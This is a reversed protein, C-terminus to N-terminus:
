RAAKAPACDLAHADPVEAAEAKVWALFSLLETRHAFGADPAFRNTATRLGVQRGQDLHQVVESTARSIRNEIEASDLSEPITLLVEIQASKEGEREGVILKRAHLSRRWHIRQVPDGEVYERLGSLVDGENASRRRESGIELTGQPEAIAPLDQIRPYVLAQTELELDVSKVFLGFPFRTSLRCGVFALEGRETPEFEYSRGVSDKPGVRLVFSRGAEALEEQGSCRDEILVAFSPTRSLDNHIRLAIRNPTGAFLERPLRREVRLGRLSSESLLGSLVLFALLLSLILYLLNNGTNLAAFGVGFVIVVFCWGARTARLTRPMRMRNRRRSSLGPDRSSRRNRERDM